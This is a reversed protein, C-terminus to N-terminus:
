ILLLAANTWIPGQMPQLSLNVMLALKLMCLRTIFMTIKLLFIIVM